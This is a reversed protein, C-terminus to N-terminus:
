LALTVRLVENDGAGSFLLNGDNPFQAQFVM